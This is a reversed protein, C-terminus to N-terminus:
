KNTGVSIIAQHNSSATRGVPHPATVVIRGQHASSQVESAGVVPRVQSSRPRTMLGGDMQPRAMVGGDLRSSMGPAPGTKAPDEDDCGLTLLLSLTAIVILCRM